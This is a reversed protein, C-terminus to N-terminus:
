LGHCYMHSALRRLITPSEYEPGFDELHSKGSLMSWYVSDQCHVGISVASVTEGAARGARVLSDAAHQTELLLGDREGPNESPLLEEYLRHLCWPQEPTGNLASEIREALSATMPMPAAAM